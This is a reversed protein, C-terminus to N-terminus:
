EKITFDREFILRNAWARYIRRITVRAYKSPRIDFDVLGDIIAYYRGDYVGALKAAELTHDLYQEKM